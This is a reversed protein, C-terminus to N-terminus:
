SLLPSIKQIWLVCPRMKIWMYAVQGVLLLYAYRKGKLIARLHKLSTQHLEEHNMQANFADVVVDQNVLDEATLDFLDKELIRVNPNTIKDKQRVIATVDHGREYAEELIQNGAKGNAGIIAIKM